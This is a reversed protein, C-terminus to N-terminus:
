SGLLLLQAKLGEDNPWYHLIKEKLAWVEEKKGATNYLELLGFLVPPVKPGRKLAEKYYEEAKKFDGDQHSKKWLLSYMQALSLLHLIDNKELKPELLLVFDRAVEEPAKANALFNMFVYSVYRAIEYDGVPSYYDFMRNFIRHFDARTRSQPLENQWKIYLQAKKFPLFAGFFIGLVALILLAIILYTRLVINM